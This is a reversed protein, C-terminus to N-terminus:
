ARPVHTGPAKEHASGISAALLLLAGAAAYVAAVIWLSTPLSSGARPAETTRAVTLLPLARFWGRGGLPFFQTWLFAAVPGVLTAAALLTFLIQAAAPFTDHLRLIGLVLLGAALQLALMAAIMPLTTGSLFAALGLAPVAGVLIAAWQWRLPMPAAGPRLAAAPWVVVWTLTWLINVYLWAFPLADGPPPAAGWQIGLAVAALGLTTLLASALSLTLPYPERQM